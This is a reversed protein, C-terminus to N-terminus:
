PTARQANAPRKYIWPNGGPNNYGLFVDYDPLYRWRGYVGRTYEKKHADFARPAPGTPRHKEWIWTQTDLTWVVPGGNWGLLKKEVPDYTIGMRNMRPPNGPVLTGNADRIFTRAKNNTPIRSNPNRWVVQSLDYYLINWSPDSAKALVVFRRTHLDLAAASDGTSWGRPSSHRYTDTAPDYSSLQGTNSGVLLSQSVPDYDTHLWGNLAARVATWQNNEPNFVFAQKVASGSRYGSGSGVWLLQQEPLWEIGDYSHTATPTNDITRCIGKCHADRYASPETLREWTLDTLRFRYMENGGYDKHGGGWVYLADHSVAGGNWAIVSAKPGLTGWAPHNQRRPFADRIKNHAPLELWQGPATLRAAQALSTIAGGSPAHEPTAAHASGSATINDSCSALAICCPLILLAVRM